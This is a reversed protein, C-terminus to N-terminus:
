IKQIARLKSSRSKPNILVELKSPVIPKKTLLVCKNEKQLNKFFDKVIKDETSHFSIVVIKGKKELIEFAKQLGIKLNEIENNVAIRLALFTKTAFHIKKKRWFPIARKIIEVLEYTTEIPKKERAKVIEISIERAWKEQAYNRLITEIEERKFTNLIEKATLASLNNDYRMILPENRQFSFGRKAEELHFSCVGLDFIIGNIPFFKEREAIEKIDKFSGNVLILREKFKEKIKKGREYLEPDIEIGLVKGAPGNRKLIEISHGGEGFTCDIFNENAKPNLIEILERKLVPLHM